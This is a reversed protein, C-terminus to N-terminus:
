RRLVPYGGAEFEEVARRLDDCERAADETPVHGRARIAQRHRANLSDIADTSCTAGDVGGVGGRIRRRKPGSITRHSAAIHSAIVSSGVDSVRVIM